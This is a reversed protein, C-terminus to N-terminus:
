DHRPTGTNYPPDMYIVDFGKTSGGRFDTLLSQMVGLNDGDIIMHPGRDPHLSEAGIPELKVPKIRETLFRKRGRWHLTADRADTDLESLDLFAQSMRLREELDKIRHVLEENPLDELPPSANVEGPSPTSIDM